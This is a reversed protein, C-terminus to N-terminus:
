LKFDEEKLDETLVKIKKESENLFSRCDKYLKIGKEFSAISEELGVQGKELVKVIQELEQLNKEFTPGSSNTEQKM